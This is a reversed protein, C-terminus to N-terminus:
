KVVKQSRTKMIIEGAKYNNTKPVEAYFVYYIIDTTYYDNNGYPNILIVPYLANDKVLVRSFELNDTSCGTKLLLLLDNTEFYDETLVMDIDYTVYSAYSNILDVKDTKWKKYDNGYGNNIYTKPELDTKNYGNECGYLFICCILTFFSIVRRLKM